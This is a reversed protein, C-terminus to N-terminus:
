FCWWFEVLLGGLSLLFFSIEPPLSFFFLSIKPPGPSPRDLPPPDPPSAWFDQVCGGCVCVVVVLLCWCAGVPVLLCWCAGVPVLLCWCGTVVVVLLFLLLLLFNPWFMLVGFNRDVSQFVLEPWIRNPWIRDRFCIPWIRIKQGFATKPWIRAHGLPATGFRQCLPSITGTLFFTEFGSVVTKKGRSSFSSFRFSATQIREFFFPAEVCARM